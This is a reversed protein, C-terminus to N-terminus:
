RGELLRRALSGANLERIADETATRDSPDVGRRELEAALAKAPGWTSMDDFADEFAPLHEDVASVVPEVWRQEVGRRRLAFRVWQRLAEPLERREAADLIAKRPLWDTLFLWVRDPSWALAGATIYGTGYDLFLNALSRTTDTDPLGSEAVYATVLRGREEEPMDDWSPSAPLDARCRSWALARLAVFGEDDQRPITRDTRRLAEALEALVDSTPAAVAPMPVDADGRQSWSEAAGARLIQLTQVTSGAVELIAAMLTYPRPDAYEVFLARRSDWVDVARWAARPAPQPDDVWGPRPQTQSLVEFADDLVQRETESVLRRLAAVAVLAEPSPHRTARLAVDQCFRAEPERDMIGAAQWVSGLGGSAWTEVSLSDVGAVIRHADRLALAALSPSVHTTRGPARGRGKPRGRSKPMGSMM